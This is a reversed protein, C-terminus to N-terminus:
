RPQATVMVWYASGDAALAMGVGIQRMPRALVNRRHPPSGMWSAVAAESSRGGEGLNENAARFRYGERRIRTGFSSGDAGTHSLRDRGALDCAHGQAAANLAASPALAPLGAAQRQVNVAAAVGAQRAGLDGPHGCAAAPLALLALLPLSLPLPLPLPLTRALTRALTRLDPM